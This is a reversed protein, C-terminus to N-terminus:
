QYSAWGNSSPPTPNQQRSSKNESFSSSGGWSSTARQGHGQQGQNHNRNQGHQPRTNNFQNYSPAAAPTSSRYSNNQYSSGINSSSNSTFAGWGSQNSSTSPKSPFSSPQPQVPQPNQSRQQRQQQGAFVPQGKQRLKTFGERPPLHSNRSQWLQNNQYNTEKRWHGSSGARENERNRGGSGSFQFNNNRQSSNFRDSPRRDSFSPNRGTVSGSNLSGFNSSSRSQFNNNSFSNTQQQHRQSSDFRVRKNDRDSDSIPRPGVHNPRSATHQSVPPKNKNQLADTLIKSQSKVFELTEELVKTDTVNNTLVAQLKSMADIEPTSIQKRKETKKEIPREPEPKAVSKNTKPIDVVAKTALIDVFNPSFVGFDRWKVLVKSIQKKDKLSAYVMKEFLNPLKEKFSARYKDKKGLKKNCKILLGDILYLIM